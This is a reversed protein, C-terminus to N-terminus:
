RREEPRAHYKTLLKKVRDLHVRELAGVPVSSSGMARLLAASGRAKRSENGGTSEHPTAHGRSASAMTADMLARTKELHQRDAGGQSGSGKLAAASACARRSAGRGIGDDGPRGRDVARHLIREM